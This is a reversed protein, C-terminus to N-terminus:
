IQSLSLQRKFEVIITNKWPGTWSSLKSSCKSTDSSLKIVKCYIIISKSDLKQSDIYVNATLLGNKMDDKLSNIADVIAGMKKSLEDSM